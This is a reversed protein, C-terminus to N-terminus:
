KIEIISKIIWNWRIGNELQSYVIERSEIWEHMKHLKSENLTCQKQTTALSFADEFTLLYKKM